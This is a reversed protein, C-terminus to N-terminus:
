PPSMEFDSKQYGNDEIIRFVEALQDPDMEPRRSLVWGYRREPEGVIAWQYESDLGIVWYEGWFPRWGLFSVFSVKLEANSNENVIKAVGEATNLGGDEETCTNMVKIEGDPTLTYEATTGSVCNKQFRNPIKAVEYWLGAYKTIDVSDVTKMPPPEQAMAPINVVNLLAFLPAAMMMAAWNTRQKM